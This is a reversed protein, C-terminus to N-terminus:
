KEIEGGVEKEKKGVQVGARGRGVGGVKEGSSDYQPISNRQPREVSTIRFPSHTCPDPSAPCSSTM